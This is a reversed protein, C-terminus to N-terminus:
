DSGIDLLDNVVYLASASASLSFFALLAATWANPDMVRHGAPIVTFVLINKLWQRMRIARIAPWLLKQDHPFTLDAVQSNRRAAAVVKNRAGAPIATGAHPWIRLDAKSDGVYDFGKEGFMGVLLDRKAAGSLNTEAHSGWWGDFIGLHNAVAEAFKADSATVLYVSVGAKRRDRLWDVLEQRYPLTAPDISVAAAIRNKTYSKGRLIWFPLLFVLWPSRKLLLILSEHLLDARILSGDLDVCLAKQTNALTQRARSPPDSYREIM